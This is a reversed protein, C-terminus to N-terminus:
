KDKPNIQLKIESIKENVESWKNIPVSFIIITATKFVIKETKKNLKFVLEEMTPNHGIIMLSNIKDDVKKIASIIDIAFGSYFIDIVQIESFCGNAEAFLKATTKTRKAPSSLILNPSINLEKLKEGILPAARLGRKNLPRDFDSLGTNSWDSKAHRM